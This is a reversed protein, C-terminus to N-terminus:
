WEINEDIFRILSESMKKHHEVEPHGSLNAYPFFHTYIKEDVLSAVAKEVYTPWPSDKRTIDMSGLACIIHAEPYEDRILQVFRRYSQIIFDENPPPKTGFRYKYEKRKPSNVLWSDNQFLNIVVIDPTENGFNWFDMPDTPDLRNYMEPMILPFWSAMIGIGSRAICSYKANYHRATLAGYTLYNNTYISDPSDGTYDEIAFGTTISNGYFEIMRKKDIPPNLLVTEKDLDFSYFWTKGKSWETRKFIELSHKGKALNKALHYLKKSTDLRIRFISDNDIIINFYNAGKEDKLMAQLGTGEFYIKVSSGPWYIEASSSDKMGIRGEYELKNNDFRVFTIQSKSCSNILIPLFLLLKISSKLFM